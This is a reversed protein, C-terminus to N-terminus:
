ELCRHERFGTPAEAAEDPILVVERQLQLSGVADIDQQVLALDCADLQVLSIQVALVEATEARGFHLVQDGKQELSRRGLGNVRVLVLSEWSFIVSENQGPKAAGPHM